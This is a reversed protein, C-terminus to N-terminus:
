KETVGATEYAMGLNVKIADTIKNMMILEHEMMGTRDMKEGTVAESTALGVIKDIRKETITMVFDKINWIEMDLRDVTLKDAKKIEQKLRHLENRADSFLSLSIEALQAIDKEQMLAASLRDYTTPTAYYPDHAIPLGREDTIM